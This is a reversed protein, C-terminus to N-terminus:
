HVPRVFSFAHGSWRMPRTIPLEALAQELIPFILEDLAQGPKEVRCFLWEGMDTKHRELEEVEHGVSRAFGTAAATPKGEADFAAEVAPGKRDQVQDAQRAAVQAIRFALRRPTYFVRSAEAEHAIGAAELRKRCGEYLSEALRQLSLPPLEECGIEVLLDASEPKTM